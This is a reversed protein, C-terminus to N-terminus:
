GGDAEVTDRGLGDRLAGALDTDAHRQTGVAAMYSFHHQPFGEQPHAESQQDTNGGGEGGTTMHLGLEEADSGPIRENQSSRRRYEANHSQECSRQGGLPGGAYVRHFRQAPFLHQEGARKRYEARHAAGQMEIRSVPKTLLLTTGPEDSRTRGSGWGALHTEEARRAQPKVECDLETTPLSGIRRLVDSSPM